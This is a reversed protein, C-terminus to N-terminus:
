EAVTVEGADVGAAMPGLASANPVVPGLASANPILVTDNETPDVDNHEAGRDDVPVAFHVEVAAGSPVSVTVALKRSSRGLEACNGPPGLRWDPHASELPVATKVTPGGMAM